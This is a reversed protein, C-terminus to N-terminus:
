RRYDVTIKAGTGTQSSLRFSASVAEARERMLAMDRADAGTAVDWVQRGLPTLAEVEELQATSHADWADAGTVRRPM